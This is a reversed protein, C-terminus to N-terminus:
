GVPILNPPGPLWNEDPAKLTEPPFKKAQLYAEASNHLKGSPDTPSPLVDKVTQSWVDWVESPDWWAAETKM